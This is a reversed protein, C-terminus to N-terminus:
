SVGGWSLYATAAAALAWALGLFADLRKFTRERELFFKGRWGRCLMAARVREGRDLGRVLLMGALNAWSRLCHLSARPRFGRVKMAATLRGYEQGVVQIYRLMLATMAALKEPAGLARVASLLEFAGTSVTVAMAASTIALAKVSLEASLALGEATAKLPGWSWVVRGPVSFSFPLALWIFLLFSNALLLTKFFARPRSPSCLLILALSGALGATAARRGELVALLASWVVLGVIKLRSDARALPGRGSLASAHSM